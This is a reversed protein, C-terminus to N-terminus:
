GRGPARPGAPRHVSGNSYDRRVFDHSARSSLPRRPPTLIIPGTRLGTGNGARPMTALGPNIPRWAGSTTRVEWGGAARRYPLGGPTTLPATRGAGATRLAPTTRSWRDYVNLSQVGFT